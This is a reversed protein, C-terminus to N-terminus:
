VHTGSKFISTYVPSKSRARKRKCIGCSRETAQPVLPNDTNILSFPQFIPIGSVYKFYQTYSQDRYLTGSSLPGRRNMRPIRGTCAFHYKLEVQLQCVSNSVGTSIAGLQPQLQLWLNPIPDSSMFPMGKVGFAEARSAVNWRPEDNAPNGLMIRQDQYVCQNGITDFPSGIRGLYEDVRALCDANFQYAEGDGVGPLACFETTTRWYPSKVDWMFQLAQGPGTAIQKCDPHNSSFIRVEQQASPLIFPTGDANYGNTALAHCFGDAVENSWKIDPTVGSHTWLGTAYMTDLFGFINAQLNQGATVTGGAGTNTEQVCVPNKIEIEVGMCKWYVYKYVLENLQQTNMFLRFYEWPFKTWHNAANSEVGDKIWITGGATVVHKDIKRVGQKRVMPIPTGSVGTGHGAQDESVGREVEMEAMAREGAKEVLAGAVRGEGIWQKYEISSDSDSDERVRKAM